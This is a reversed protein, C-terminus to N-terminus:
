KETGDVASAYHSLKSAVNPLEYGFDSDYMSEGEGDPTSNFEYIIRALEAFTPRNTPETEWCSKMVNYLGDPCGEPEELRRGSRLFDRVVALGMEKYPTPEGSYIQWLVVGFSWM